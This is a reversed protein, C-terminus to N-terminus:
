KYDIKHKQMLKEALARNEAVKVEFRALAQLIEKPPQLATWEKLPQYDRERKRERERERGGKAHKLFPRAV